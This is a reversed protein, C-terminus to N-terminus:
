AQSRHREAGPVRRRRLTSFLPDSSTMAASRWHRFTRVTIGHQQAGWTDFARWLGGLYTPTVVRALTAVGSAGTGRMQSLNAQEINARGHQKVRLRERELDKRRDNATWTESPKNDLRVTLAALRRQEADTLGTVDRYRLHRGIVSRMLGRLEHPMKARDLLITLADDTIATAQALQL